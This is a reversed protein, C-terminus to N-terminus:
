GKMFECYLGHFHHLGGEREVSYRGTDYSRSALGRQVQECITIDEQQVTESFALSKAFDAQVSPQDPDVLYWDFITHTRGVGNPAIVNVQINDPYINLMLNPFVWYYLAEAAAGAPLNRRYLSDGKNRIPAYQKSYYRETEVRYQSYDLEKMLGPHVLPIHYGELYNDVYVKWDCKLEWTIRRFFGMRDLPFQATEAPIKGLTEKLTPVGPAGAALNVFLFPGWAEVAVQPLGFKEKEFCEVGKFEPTVRLTGDLGYTWGHYACRLLKVNGSAGTAVPGGRHRCVNYFAKLGNEGEASRVVVIPEGAVDATFYDGINKVAGAAGVLQWTRGFVNKNELELVGPETYWGSPLTAAKAINAEFKLSSPHMRHGDKTATSDARIM